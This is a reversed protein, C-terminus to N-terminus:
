SSSSLSPSISFFVKNWYRLQQSFLDTGKWFMSARLKDKEAKTKSRHIRDINLEEYAKGNQLAFEKTMKKPPKAKGFDVLVPVDHYVTRFETRLEDTQDLLALAGVYVTTDVASVKFGRQKCQFCAGCQAPSQKGCSPGAMGRLDNVVWALVVALKALKTQQLEEDWYEVELPPNGPQWQALMEVYPQLWIQDSKAGKPLVAALRQEM